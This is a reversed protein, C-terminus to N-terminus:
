MRITSPLFDDDSDDEDEEEATGFTSKHGELMLHADEALQRDPPKADATSKERITVDIQRSVLGVDGREAALSTHDKKDLEDKKDLSLRNMDRSLADVESRLEIRVLKKGDKKIYSPNNMQTKIFLARLACDDSCWMNLDAVNAVGARRMKFRGTYQRRPNPCLTYGCNGVCNREEILDDYERPTFDQLASLFEQVDDPYPEAASFGTRVTPFQSLHEFVELPVPPKIEEGRLRLLEKAQQIAIQQELPRPTPEPPPPAADVVGKPRKLIGKPKSASSHMAMDPRPSLCESPHTQPITTVVLLSHM